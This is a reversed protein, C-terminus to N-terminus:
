RRKPKPKKLGAKSRPASTNASAPTKPGDAAAEDTDTADLADDTVPAAEVVPKKVAPKKAEAKKSAPKTDDPSPEPLAMSPGGLQYIPQPKARWLERQRYYFFAAFPVIALSILQAQSFSAFFGREPDDRVYEIAFRWFSYAIALVFLVQGHFQRRRWVLLTIACLTFGAISEYIQTPHCPLSHASDFALDYASVHRSWAPSGEDVLREAFGAEATWHPFTGLRQLWAPADEALPAGFDCGYLYCGIRTLGHGLALTPATVDAFRLLSLHKYRFYALSGFFGGLFGGYAVFGGNRFDVWSGITGFEAPNTVIYLARAGFMASLAAVIFGNALTDKDMGDREGIWMVVYWAAIFSTGLMVGYSFIPQPGWPTPIEFLIPHM